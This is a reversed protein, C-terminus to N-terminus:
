RRPQAGPTRVTSPRDFGLQPLGEGAAGELVPVKVGCRAATEAKEWPSLRGGTRPRVSPAPGGRM